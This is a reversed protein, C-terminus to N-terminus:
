GAVDWNNFLPPSNTWGRGLLHLQALCSYWKYNTYNGCYLLWCYTFLSQKQQKLALSSLSSGPLFGSWEVTALYYVRVYIFSNVLNQQWCHWLSWYYLAWLIRRPPLGHEPGAGSQYLVHVPLKPPIWSTQYWIAQTSRGTAFENYANNHVQTSISSCVNHLPFGSRLGTKLSHGVQADYRRSSLRGDLCTVASSLAWCHTSYGACPSM